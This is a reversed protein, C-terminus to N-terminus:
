HRCRLVALQDHPIRVRGVFHVGDRESGAPHHSTGVGGGATIHGATAKVVYTRYVPITVVRSWTHLVLDTDIYLYSSPMHDPIYCLIQISICTHHHCMIRDPIYFLIQISICTHHHCMIPYTVCPRYQYVPIIIVSSRTHLVLDTNIYLYSSSVQDPIYCMTQISICTHHHCMILYTCIYCLAQHPICMFSQNLASLVNGWSVNHQYYIVM